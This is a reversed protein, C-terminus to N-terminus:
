KVLSFFYEDNKRVIKVEQGVKFHFKHFIYRSFIRNRSDVRADVRKDSVYIKIVSPLFFLTSVFIFHNSIESRTLNRSYDFDELAMNHISYLSINCNTNISDLKIWELISIQQAFDVVSFKFVFGHNHSNNM